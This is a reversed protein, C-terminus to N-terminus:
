IKDLKKGKVVPNARAIAARGAAKYDFRCSHEEPFRHSGCFTFGCRCTFGVLGVRKRCAGCRNPNVPADISKLQSQSHAPPAAPEDPPLPSPPEPSLLPDRHRLAANPFKDRYCKSCLNHTTPSGFFGCNNACPRHHWRQEEEAM